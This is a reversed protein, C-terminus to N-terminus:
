QQVDGAPTGTYHRLRALSFDARLGDFLSLPRPGDPAPEYAGDAIEDGISALETTPFWRAIEGSAAGDLAMDEAGDLVYPFPMEQASKGVTVTVGYDRVLLELQECLYDRYLDPRTVTTAYTGPESLRAYARYLRPRAGEPRWSVRLEPYAFAGAARAAPDPTEGTQLFRRLASRLGNVSDLYLAQLEDVIESPNAPTM